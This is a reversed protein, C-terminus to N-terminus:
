QITAGRPIKIDTDVIKDPEGSLLNATSEEITDLQKINEEIQLEIYQYMTDKPIWGDHQLHKFIFLEGKPTIYVQGYERGNPTVGIKYELYGQNIYKQYPEWTGRSKSKFIMGDLNMYNFLKNRGINGALTRAFQGVTKLGAVNMCIDYYDAKPQLIAVQEQIMKLNQRVAGLLKDTQGMIAAIADESSRILKPNIAVGKNWYDYLVQFCEKQYKILKDKVIENKINEPNIQFLWGNISTVPIVIVDQDVGHIPITLDSCGWVHYRATPQGDKKLKKRQSSWDFGINQCVHKM